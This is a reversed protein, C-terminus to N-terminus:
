GSSSITICGFKPALNFGFNSEKPLSMSTSTRLSPIPNVPIGFTKILDRVPILANILTKNLTLLIPSSISSPMDTGSPVGIILTTSQTPMGGTVVEEEVIVAVVIEVGVRLDVVVVLDVAVALVDLTDLDLDVVVVDVVDVVDVVVEVGVKVGVVGVSVGVGVGVGM